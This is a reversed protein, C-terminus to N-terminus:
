NTVYEYIEERSAPQAPQTTGNLVFDVKGRYESPCNNVCDCGHEAVYVKFRSDKEGVGCFGNLNKFTSHVESKKLQKQSNESNAM